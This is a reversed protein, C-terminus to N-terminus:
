EKPSAELVDTIAPVMEKKRSIGPKLVYSTGDFVTRDGFAAKLVEDATEDSPILYAISLDDHFVSIQAFAMDMGTQALTKPVVEKMRAAMNKAEEEDYVDICGIGYKEGGAEYEKYDHFFIEEDTMGDYSVFADFMERYFADTDSIGAMYALTNAAIRDAETSASPMLNHTDSLISALMVKATKEGPTLGYNYFRICVITATSGLPRADYILQNGTTVTGAGHHDIITIINAEQLGEASQAYESHDILVMNCGSADEMKKPEEVGAKELILKTEKNIEGFVVAQADYGLQRLLEAYAISSGVTDTDPSKHGSVYIPGEIRGLGDLESRNLETVIEQQEAYHELEEQYKEIEEKYEEIEEKFAEIEEQYQAADELETFAEKTEEAMVPSTMLALSLILCLAIRKMGSIRRTITQTIDLSMDVRTLAMQVKCLFGLVLWLASGLIVNVVPQWIYARYSQTAPNRRTQGRQKKVMNSGVRDIFSVKDILAEFGQTCIASLFVGAQWLSSRFIGGRDQKSWTKARIDMCLM